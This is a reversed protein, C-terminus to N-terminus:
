AASVVPTSITVINSDITLIPPTRYVWGDAIASVGPVAVEVGGVGVELTGTVGFIIEGEKINEELLNSDWAYAFKYSPYRAPPIGILPDGDEGWVDAGVLAEISDRNDILYQEIAKLADFANNILWADIYHLLDNVTPFSDLDPPFNLPYDLKNLHSPTTM